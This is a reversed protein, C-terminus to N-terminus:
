MVHEILVVQWVEFGFFYCVGIQHSISVIECSNVCFGKLSGFLGSLKITIIMIQSSYDYIELHQDSTATPLSTKPIVFTSMLTVVTLSMCIM